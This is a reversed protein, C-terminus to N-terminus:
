QYDELDVSLSPREKPRLVFAGSVHGKTCTPSIQAPICGCDLAAPPEANLLAELECRRCDDVHKEYQKGHPGDVITDHPWKAVLGRLRQEQSPTTM